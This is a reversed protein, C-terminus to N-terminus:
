DAKNEKRHSCVRKGYKNITYSQCTGEVNRVKPAAAPKVPTVAPSGTATKCPHSATAVCTTAPTAANAGSAPTQASVGSTGILGLAVASMAASKLTQKWLSKM